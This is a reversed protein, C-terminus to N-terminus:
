RLTEGRSLAHVCVPQAGTSPLFRARASKEVARPNVRHEVCRVPDRSPYRVTPFRARTSQDFSGKGGPPSHTGPQAFRM